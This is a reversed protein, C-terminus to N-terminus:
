AQVRREGIGATAARARRLDESRYSNMLLPFQEGAARQAATSTVKFAHERLIQAMRNATQLTQENVERWDWWAAAAFLAAPVLISAVLLTWLAQDRGV